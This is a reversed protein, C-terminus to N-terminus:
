PCPSSSCTLTDATPDVACLGHPAPPSAGGSFLASLKYVADGINNQGDDNADCADACTPTTGSAFLFTLLFVPDGINFTSDGNCDGRDFSPQAPGCEDPVGNGDGDLSYGNAIDCSDLVGNSNCDFQAGVALECADLIGNGNCDNGALQCVDPVSDNNCDTMVGTAFDCSDPIGNSNCDAELAVQSTNRHIAVGSGSFASALAIDIRGDADYDAADLRSYSVSGGVYPEPVFAGAGQNLMVGVTSGALDPRGDSDFDGVVLEVPAASGPLLVSTFAGGGDNSLLAVATSGGTAIDYDGDLDADIAVLTEVPQGVATIQPAGFVGGGQNFFTRVESSRGVCLDVLSDGDFDEAIVWRPISGTAYDVRTFSSGAGDNLLVSVNAHWFNATVLDLAGDGDFDGAAMSRPTSGVTTGSGLSFVGTGDNLLLVVTSSYGGAVDIDGDGDFDGAALTDIGNVLHIVNITSVFTGDGNNLAVHLPVTQNTAMVVDLDGDGDFDATAIDNALGAPQIPILHHFEFQLLRSEVDCDDPRGNGNCDQSSGSSLDTADHVGNQNCDALLIAEVTDIMGHGVQSTSGAVPVATTTLVARLQAPTIGPIAEIILAAAGSAAPAAMSTGWQVYYDAAGTGYNSDNDILFDPDPFGAFTGSDKCSITVSGPAVLDPKAAGDIRPGQGSFPALTGVVMWDFWRPLGDSRTWSTRQTWCGITIADDATGPHNLTYQPDPVDFTALSWTSPNFVHVLPTQGSLAANTITFSYTRSAGVALPTINLFYQQAETGRSSTGTWHVGAAPVTGTLTGLTEGPLLNTCILTMNSDSVGDQWILRLDESPTYPFGSTNNITLTFAASTSNPAVTMSAHKAVNGDNGAAVFCTMGSATAADIAQCVLSSGDMYTHVGGYSLNYIHCGVFLARNISEIIDTDSAFATVDDGIKYFHLDAGPAVGTHIGSSVVGSGLVTGTVHTGHAMVTNTVTTSWAGPGAGAHTGTTMDFAETPTPFDLHTLDIGSDAVAVKVGTGDRPLTEIGLSVDWARMMKRAEFNLPASWQEASVVSVVLPHAELYNLRSYSVTALYFGFPHKGVVPPVWGTPHLQVGATTMALWEPGLLPRTMYIGVQETTPDGRHVAAVPASAQPTSAFNWANRDNRTAEARGGEAGDLPAAEVANKIRQHGYIVDCIKGDASAETVFLVIGVFAVARAWNRRSQITLSNKM